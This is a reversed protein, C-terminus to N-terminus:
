LVFTDFITLITLSTLSTLSTLCTLSKKVKVDCTKRKFVEILSFYILHFNSILLNKNNNKVKVDCTKPEICDILGFYFYKWCKKSSSFLLVQQHVIDRVVVYGRACKAALCIEGCWVTHDFINQPLIRVVVVWPLEHHCTTGPWVAHRPLTIM